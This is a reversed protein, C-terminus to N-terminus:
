GHIASVLNGYMLGLYKKLQQNNVVLEYAIDSPMSKYFEIAANLRSNYEDLKDGSYGYKVENEREQTQINAIDERQKQIMKTRNELYETAKQSQEDNYKQIKDLEENREKVLKDIDSSISKAYAIDLDSLADQRQANLQQIKYDIANVNSLYKGYIKAKMDEYDKQAQEDLNTKISSRITGKKATTSKIQDLNDKKNQSNDAYEKKANVLAANKKNNEINIKADYEDEVVAKEQERMPAYYDQIRAKIEEESEGEYTKPTWEYTEPMTNEYLVWRNSQKDKWAKDMERLQNYLETQSESLQQKQAERQAKEEKDKKTEIGFFDKIKEWM